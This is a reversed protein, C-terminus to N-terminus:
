APQRQRAREPARAPRTEPMLLLLVLVAGAGAAAMALFAAPVGIRDAVWGALTTSFTAGLGSALGFWGIVLNLFGSRRTVDAAVLPLMLGFVTASVGDLVELGIVEPANPEGTFLLALLVAHVPEAAFGALLIPRRGVRQALRGVWPSAAAIIAQPLLISATVVFGTPMRLALQNLALPLMAANALQFLAAAAAFTFLGREAATHWFRRMQQRRERPTWTAPHEEPGAVCEGMPISYLAALAPLVIAAALLFVAQETFWAACAGMGLAGAANGLSAYRANIGLRQGFAAHGCLCLTIAAIAPTLVCSAVAHLIQADRITAFGSGGAMMAASAGLGALAVAAALRKSPIADVVAGAPLQALLAIGTGLSLVLGIDTQTWHERILYVSVFPGFGTQM